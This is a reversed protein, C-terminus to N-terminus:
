KKLLGVEKWYKEAGPHFPVIFDVFLDQFQGYPQYMGVGEKYNQHMIKCIEYAVDDPLRTTTGWFLVTGITAVPYDQKPYTNAPITTQYWYRRNALAKKTIEDPLPILRCHKITFLELPATAPFGQTHIIVDAHGDKLADYQQEMASFNTAKIDKNPDWGAAEWVAANLKQMSMAKSQDAVRKGKIDWFTKVPGDWLAYIQTANANAPVLARLEKGKTGFKAWDGKADYADGATDPGTLGIDIAGEVLQRTHETTGKGPIVSINLKPLGPLPAYKNVLSAAAVAIGYTTGSTGTPYWTLNYKTSKTEQAFAGGVVFVIVLFVLSVVGVMMRWQRDM